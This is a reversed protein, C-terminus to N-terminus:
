RRRREAAEQRQTAQVIRWFATIFGLGLGVLLGWPATHRWRDFLWGLAAGALVNFVFDLAVGWAKAMGAADSGASPPPNSPGDRLAEPVPGPDPAHTFISKADAELESEMREIRKDREAREDAM